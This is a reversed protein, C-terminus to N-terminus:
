SSVVATYGLTKIAAIMQTTTVKSPDFRVVANAQKYSVDASTVGDLRTLVKRVGLVCGGCTMGTIRLTVVSPAPTAIAVPAAHAIPASVAAFSMATPAAGNAAVNTASLSNTSRAGCLPCLALGGGMAAIGFATLAKMM